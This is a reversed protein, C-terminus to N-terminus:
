RALRGYSRLTRLNALTLVAQWKRKAALWADPFSDGWNWHPDWCGEATQTNILYDLNTEVDAALQARWPSSATTAIELPRLRYGKWQAPDREVAKEIWAPIAKQLAARLDVPLGPADFLRLYCRLSDLEIADAANSLRALTLATVHQRLSATIETPFTYLCALVDPRPNDQYRRWNEVTKDSYHWWPAHPQSNDHPPIIHWAEITSDYNAVLFALARQVAPDGATAGLEHFLHLAHCTSLVTSVTFGIDAELSHFGGDANQFKALEALAPAAPANEFHFAFLARELPRSQYLFAAARAFAAPTLQLAPMALPQSLARPLVLFLLLVLVTTPHRSRPGIM